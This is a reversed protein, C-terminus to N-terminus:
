QGLSAGGAAAPLPLIVDCIRCFFLILAIEQVHFGTYPGNRFRIRFASLGEARQCTSSLRLKIPRSWNAATAGLKRSFVSSMWKTSLIKPTIFVFDDWRAALKM